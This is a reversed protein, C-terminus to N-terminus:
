FDNPDFAVPLARWLLEVFVDDRWAGHGDMSIAMGNERLSADTSNASGYEIMAHILQVGFKPASLVRIQQKRFRPKRRM